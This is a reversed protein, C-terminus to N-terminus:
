ALAHSDGPRHRLAAALSRAAIGACVLAAGLLAAEAPEHNRLLAVVSILGALGVLSLSVVRHFRGVESRPWTDLSRVLERGEDSNTCAAKAPCANCVLARARYRVLRREDDRHRLHLYEGEPCEWADIHAHFRSGGIGYQESRRHSHRALADLGYACGLLIAAYAAALVVEADLGSV